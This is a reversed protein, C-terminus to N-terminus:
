PIGYVFTLISFQQYYVVTRSATQSDTDALTPRGVKVTAGGNNDVHSVPVATAQVCDDSGHKPNPGPQGIVESDVSEKGNNSATTLQKM